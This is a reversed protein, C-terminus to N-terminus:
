RIGIDLAGWGLSAGWGAGTAVVGIWSNAPISASAVGMNQETGAGTNANCSTTNLKTGANLATGSPTAYVDITAAGGVVVDPRCKISYVTRASDIDGISVGVTPTSLNLNAGWSLPIHQM